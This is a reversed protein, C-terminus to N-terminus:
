RRNTIREPGRREGLRRIQVILVFLAFIIILAIATIEGYLVLRNNEIFYASGNAAIIAMQLSWVLALAILLAQSIIVLTAAGLRRRM